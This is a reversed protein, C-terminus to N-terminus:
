ADTCAPVDVRVATVTAERANKRAEEHFDPAQCVFLTRGDGGGLACAFVGAGLTIEDVIDGGERVRIVRGNVADAVWLAGEADLASGDSGVTVQGLVAAIDTEAPLDGFRAWVRRNTLGGDATIDFATIRNGFTENVLLVDDTTVVSGNPFWLEDAVETVTGGPDVRLLNAPQLPEGGMLDFGFNGVFARGRRDVAMDNLHGGTGRSLDAHTVLTGDLERRLLKRDRMSVILLRGDPLWGLGSPQEPVVAEVRRATGDERVSLVQHTYMDSVWLRGQHWRPGELYSLGTLVTTTDRSM